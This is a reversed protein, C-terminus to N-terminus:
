KENHTNIRTSFDSFRRSQIIEIKQLLTGFNALISDSMGDMPEVQELIRKYLENYLTIYQEIWYIFVINIERFFIGRSEIDTENIFPLRNNIIEYRISDLYNIHKSIIDGFFFRENIALKSNKCYAEPSFRELFKTIYYSVTDGTMQKTKDFTGRIYKENNFSIFSITRKGRIEIFIPTNRSRIRLNTTIPTLTDDKRNAFFSTFEFHKKVVDLFFLANPNAYLRIFNLSEKTSDPIYTMPRNTAPDFFKELEKSFNYKKGLMKCNSDDIDTNKFCTIFYDFTDIDFDFIEFLDEFDRKDYGLESLIGLVDYLGVGKGYLDKNSRCNELGEGNIIYTLFLRLLNCRSDNPNTDWIYRFVTYLPSDPNRRNLESYFKTIYFFLIGRKISHKCRDDSLIEIDEEPMESLISVMCDSLAINNGNWLRSIFKEEEIKDMEDKFSKLVNEYTMCKANPLVNLKECFAKYFQLKRIFIDVSLEKSNIVYRPARILDPLRETVSPNPCMASIASVYNATRYVFIFYLNNLISQPLLTETNNLYFPFVECFYHHIKVIIEKAIYESLHSLVDDINDFIIVTKRNNDTINLKIGAILFLMFLQETNLRERNEDCFGEIRSYFLESRSLRGSARSDRTITNIFECLDNCFTGFLTNYDRIGSESNPNGIQTKVWHDCIEYLVGNLKDKHDISLNKLFEIIQDRFGDVKAPIKGLSKFNLEIINYEGNLKSKLNRIFTSKGNKGHGHVYHIKEGNNEINRKLKSLENNTDKWEESKCYFTEKFDEFPLLGEDIEIINKQIVSALIRGTNYENQIQSDDIQFIKKFRELQEDTM